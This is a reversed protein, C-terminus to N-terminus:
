CGNELNVQTAPLAWFNETFRHLNGFSYKQLDKHSGIVTDFFHLRHLSYLTGFSESSLCTCIYIQKWLNRTIETVVANAFWGHKAGDILLPSPGWRGGQSYRPSYVLRPFGFIGGASRMGFSSSDIIINLSIPILYCIQLSLLGIIKKHKQYM